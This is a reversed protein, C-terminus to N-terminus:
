LPSNSTKGFAPILSPLKGEACGRCLREESPFQITPFDKTHKLAHRLVKRSPHAFRRHMTDYDVKMVTSLSQVVEESSASSTVGYISDGPLHPEFIMYTEKHRHISM